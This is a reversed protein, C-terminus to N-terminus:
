PSDATRTPRVRWRAVDVLEGRLDMRVDLLRRSLGQLGRAHYIWAAPMTRRLERQVDAWATRALEPTPAARARALLTDLTPTHYDGYDLAGGALRSDYMADLYSLSLDGPIGTFLVDFTRPRARAAALLSTMDRLEIELDIGVAALDAQLLQEVANDGSSVTLLALRLPRGNRTRVGGAGRRWGASDLLADAAVTDVPVATAAAYPHEPPVPGYAPTAYGALAARVIRPRDVAMAIARRVRADDLPARATNFILAYSFLVPYDLVRLTPDRAALSAMSPSIGAVDLEGGALGAFKTTAEDVIAIVLKQINPPGGMERPFDPNRAFVWRQEPTRQVFRFPGNGIPTRGFEANRMASHLVGALRHAPVIPLECFVLPFGPPPRSFRVSVTTDDDVQVSTVDALDAYRPYGTARDRAADITFAVDRASTVRGDQWRLRPVLHFTLTSRDPSWTWRRAFYPVPALTSDYRALTVLLVYRQVQRSLPHITVLPNASELDAGSAYVVTGADHSAACAVALVGLLAAAIPRWRATCRQLIGTSALREHPMM